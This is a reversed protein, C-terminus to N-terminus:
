FPDMTARSPLIRDACLGPSWQAHFSMTPDSVVMSQDQLWRWRLRLAAADQSFRYRTSTWRAGWIQWHSNGYSLGMTTNNVLPPLGSDMAQLCDAGPDLLRALNRPSLGSQISHLEKPERPNQSSSPYRDILGRNLIDLEQSVVKTLMKPYSQM